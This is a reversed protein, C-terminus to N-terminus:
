GFSYMRLGKINVLLLGPFIRRVQIEDSSFKINNGLSVTGDDNRVLDVSRFILVQSLMFLAIGVLFVVSLLEGHTAPNIGLEALMVQAAIVYKLGGASM